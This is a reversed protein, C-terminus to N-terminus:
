SGQERRINEQIQLQLRKQWHATLYNLMMREGELVLLYFTRCLTRFIKRWSMTVHGSNNLRYATTIQHWQPWTLASAISNGPCKKAEKWHLLACFFPYKDIYKHIAYLDIQMLKYQIKNTFQKHATIRNLIINHM